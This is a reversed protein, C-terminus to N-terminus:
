PWAGHNPAIATRSRPPSPAAPFNAVGHGHHRQERRRPPVAPRRARGRRGRYNAFRTRPGAACNPANRQRRLAGPDVSSAVISMARSDVGPGNPAASARHRPAPM